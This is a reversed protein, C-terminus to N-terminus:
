TAEAAFHYPPWPGSVTVECGAAALRRAEAALLSEFDGTAAPVLFVADLLLTAAEPPAERRRSGAAAAALADFARAAAAVAEEGRRRADERRQRKARLFDTGSAARPATVPPAPPALSVRVGIEVRGAVRDLLSGLRAEEEDAWSRARGDSAFLTFLKMPLLAEVGGRSAVHEIVREHALARASVWSLDEFGAAIAPEDYDDPPVSAVVLWRRDGAPLARPPGAGPPGEPVEGLEPPADDRVLCYLYTLESM